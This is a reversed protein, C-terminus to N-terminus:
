FFRPITLNLGVHPLVLYLGVNLLGHSLSVGVISGTKKVIWGFFLAVIFAFVGHTVSGQGIQLITYILAVYIWGWSGLVSAARQMVGRFALEEVFGTAILLILSPLIMMQVTFESVLAEPKLIIYDIIGLGIGMLAILAQILVKRGNLGVDDLSYNLNRMVALVGIFIPISIIIYWYIESIEPVPMVLSSIRILPVLGLALWLGRQAEDHVAASNIIIILLISFHLIIGSLPTVYYTVFEAGAFAVLYTLCLFVLRKAGTEVMPLVIPEPVPKALGITYLREERLEEYTKAIKKYSRSTLPYGCWQCALDETRLAERHCNPCKRLAFLEAKSIGSRRLLAIGSTLVIIIVVVVFIPTLKIGWPTYKLALVTLSFLVISLVFTLMAREIGKISNKNPFLAATLTYGPFVLLFIVGLIIRPAGESLTVVPYTILTLIFIIVLEM